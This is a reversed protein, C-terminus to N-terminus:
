FKQSNLYSLKNLIQKYNSKEKNYITLLFVLCEPFKEPLVNRMVAALLRMEGSM